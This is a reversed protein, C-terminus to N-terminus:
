DAPKIVHGYHKEIAAVSDGDILYISGPTRLRILRNDLDFEADGLHIEYREGADTTILLEGWQELELKVKEM